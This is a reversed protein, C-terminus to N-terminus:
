VGYQLPAKNLLRATFSVNILIVYDWVILVRPGTAKVAASMRRRSYLKLILCSLSHSTNVNVSINRRFVYVLLATSETLLNPTFQLYIPVNTVQYISAFNVVYVSGDQMQKRLKATTRRPRNYTTAHNIFYFYIPTLHHFTNIYTGHHIYLLFIYTHSSNYQITTHVM